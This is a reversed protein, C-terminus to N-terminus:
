SLCPRDYLSSESSHLSGPSFLGQHIPSHKGTEALVTGLGLSGNVCRFRLEMCKLMAWTYRVNRIHAQMCVLARVSVCRSGTLIGDRFISDGGPPPLRSPWPLLVGLDGLLYM